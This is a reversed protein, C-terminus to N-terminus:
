CILTSKYWNLNTQKTENRKRRSIPTGTAPGVSQSSLDLREEGCKNMLNNNNIIRVM